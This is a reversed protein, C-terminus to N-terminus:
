PPGKMFSGEAELLGALYYKDLDDQTSKKVVNIKTTRTPIVTNPVVGKIIKSITPHSVRYKRSLEAISKTKNEEVLIDRKQYLNRYINGRTGTVTGILYSPLDSYGNDVIYTNLNQLVSNIRNRRRVGMYPEIAIYLAEATVSKIICSFGDNWNKNHSTKRYYNVDFISSIKQIVDEDNLQISVIPHPSDKKTNFFGDGELLGALWLLDVDKITINKHSM